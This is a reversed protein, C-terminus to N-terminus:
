QLDQLLSLVCAPDADHESSVEFDNDRRVECERYGQWPCWPGSTGVVSNPTAVAGLATVEVECHSGFGRNAVLKRGNVRSRVHPLNLRSSEETVHREELRIHASHSVHECGGIPHPM